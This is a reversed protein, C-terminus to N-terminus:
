EGGGSPRALALLEEASYRYQQRCFRCTLEAGNDEQAMTTLEKAGLSILARTLKDKSCHCSYVLPLPDLVDYAIGGFLKEAMSIGNGGAALFDTVSPIRAVMEEALSTVSDDAGPLLQLLFGGAKGVSSDPMVLVGLGVAAPIQESRAFYHSFDDGIEGSVLPVSSQYSQKLGLDKIVNLFGNKGVASGVDLKGKPNLDLHVEPNQIYSRLEGEGNAVAVMTGLPGGGAVQVTVEHSPVKQLAGLFATGTMVRGIAAAATPWCGHIRCAEDVLDTTEATLLRVPLDRAVLRQILDM